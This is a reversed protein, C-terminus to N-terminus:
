RIRLSACTGLETFSCTLLPDKEGTEKAAGIVEDFTLGVAIVREEDSSFAIWSNPKATRLVQLRENTSMM